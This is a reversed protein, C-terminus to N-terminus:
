SRTEAKRWPACYNEWREKLPTPFGFKRGPRHFGVVPNNSPRSGCRRMDHAEPTDGIKQEKAAAVPGVLAVALVALIGLEYGKM